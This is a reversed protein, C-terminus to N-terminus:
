FSDVDTESTANVTAGNIKVKGGSLSSQPIYSYKFYFGLSDKKSRMVQVSLLPMVEYQLNATIASNNSKNKGSSFVFERGTLSYDVGFGLTWGESLADSKALTTSTLLLATLFIFVTNKIKM